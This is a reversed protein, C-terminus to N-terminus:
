SGEVERAYVSPRIARIEYLFKKGGVAVGKLFLQSASVKVKASQALGLSKLLVVLLELGDSDVFSQSTTDIYIIGGCQHLPIKRDSWFDADMTILCHGRAAVRTLLDDDSLKAYGLEQATKVAIGRKRLKEILPAPFNVDSVLRLKEPTSGPERWLDESIPFWGGTEFLADERRKLKRRSAV